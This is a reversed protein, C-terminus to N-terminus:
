ARVRLFHLTPGRTALWLDDGDVDVRQEEDDIRIREADIVDWRRQEGAGEGGVVTGDARFDVHVPMGQAQWRGLLRTRLEAPSTAPSTTRPPREGKPIAGFRERMMEAARAEIPTPPPDAIRDLNVVVDSSPLLYARVIGDDPAADFATEGVSLRREGVHLLYLYRASGKSAHTSGGLIQRDVREKRFRGEVVDLVTSESAAREARPGRTMGKGKLLLAGFIAFAAGVALSQLRSGPIRGALTGGVIVLGFALLALGALLGSRQSKSADLHLAQIQEATLRGARNDGLAARPFPDQTM